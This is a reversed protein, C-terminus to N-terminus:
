EVTINIRGLSKPVRSVWFPWFSVTLRDIGDLALVTSKLDEENKGAITKALQNTDIPNWFTAQYLVQAQIRYNKSDVTTTAYSITGEKEVYTSPINGEKRAISQLVARLDSEKFTLASSEAEIAVTFNKNEDVRTDVKETLITFTPTDKIFTFGNPIKLAITSMISEKMRAEASKKALDIDQTTAIPVEGSSGGSMPQLSTAYFKEYKDTGKFGPITFHDVPDINYAPGPQDATVEAEISGPEFVQGIKKGGPVTVRKDLRFIKGDPTEFRTTAVLVQPSTSYNNFIIVTGRAKTAGTQIGTAPFTFVNTKRETVVEGAIHDTTSTGVTSDAIIVQHTITVPIKKTTIAVTVRPLLAVFTYVIAAVALFGAVWWGIRRRARVRPSTRSLASFDKREKAQSTNSEKTTSTKENPTDDTSLPRAKGFDRLAELKLDYIESDYSSTSAELEDHTIQIKKQDSSPALIDTVPVFKKKKQQAM